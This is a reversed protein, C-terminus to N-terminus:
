RAVGVRRAAGERTEPRRTRARAARDECRPPPPDAYYRRLTLDTRLSRPPPSGPRDEEGRGTGSREGRCDSM